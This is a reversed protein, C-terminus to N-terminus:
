RGGRLWSPVKLGPKDLAKNPQNFEGARNDKLRRNAEQLETIRTNQQQITQYKKALAQQAATLKDQLQTLQKTVQTGQTQALIKSRTVLRNVEQLNNESTALHADLNTMQEESLFYGSRDHPLGEVVAMIEATGTAKLVRLFKPNGIIM